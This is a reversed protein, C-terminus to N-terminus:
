CGPKCRLSGVIICANHQRPMVERVVVLLPLLNVGLNVDHLALHFGDNLFLVDLIPFRFITGGREEGDEQQM